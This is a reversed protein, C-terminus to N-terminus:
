VIPGAPSSLVQAFTQDNPVKLKFVATTKDPTSVSDLNGLLSAPGNPDNIKLQRDFTFKVDESTLPHGNAFKLDPKLKVTFETPSTFKASEAIDPKVDPSGYPSNLLFPYVQNMVAFSGNDYSGAPDISTIKDTTGVTLTGGGGGSSNNNSGSCGALVLAAAAFAASVALLRRGGIHASRM